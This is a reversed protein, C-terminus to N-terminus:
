AASFPQPGLRPQLEVRAGVAHAVRQSAEDQVYIWGQRVARSSPALAGRELVFAGPAVDSPRVEVGEKSLEELVRALSPARLPNVRTTM